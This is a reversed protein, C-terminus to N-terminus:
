LKIKEYYIDNLLDCYEEVIYIKYEVEDFSKICKSTWKDYTNFIYRLSNIRGKPCNFKKPRIKTNTVKKIRWEAQMSEIKNDFGCIICIINWPRDNQNSTAKAGGKILGNHQRIRKEINNTMGNYTKRKNSSELIYCVWKEKYFHLNM